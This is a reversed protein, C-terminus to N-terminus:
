ERRPAAASERVVLSPVPLERQPPADGRTIADAMAHAARGLAVFDMHVTTLAPTWLATSPADDFGVISVDVPVERGVDYMARRVGLAIDDNGCFIATVDPRAALRRGAEYGEQLRWGASIVEPVRAGAAQLADRWGSQRGATPREPPIAVHHVTAHGLGLLYATARAAATREDLSLAPRGLDSHGPEAVVVVPVEAPIEALVAFSAPDFGIVVVAGSSPDSLHEVVRRVHPTASSEVVMISLTHGAGRASEEIGRLTSAHGYLSTDATVVTVAGLRGYNLSRAARSPRYDMGAITDLVKRRTEERVHPADNLVRSVTQYSVGAAAAVDRINPAHRRPALQPEDPELNAM